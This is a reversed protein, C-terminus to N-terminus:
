SVGRVKPGVELATRTAIYPAAKPWFPRLLPKTKILRLCTFPFPNFTTIAGKGAEPTKLGYLWM